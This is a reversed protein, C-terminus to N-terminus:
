EPAGLVQAYVRAVGEAVAEPAHRAAVAVRAAEGLRRRREPDASLRLVAEALADPDDDPVIVGNKDDVLAHAASRCAVVPRGAAMANLIKMPYGSWSTRPCVVISDRRLSERLSAFDPTAVVEAWAPLGGTSRASTAILLRTDPREARAREMAAFLLGLNQYADLNGTYMVPATGQCLASPAFAHAELPPPVVTIRAPDCGCRELYAALAAHPAIIHDARRPFSRDLWAGFRGAARRGRFYHPLEDAMANHAHYVVPGAGAALAALLGEYNHAHVVEVGHARAVRRLTWALAADYFPKAASPGAAIRRAGPFRACRHIPLGSTDEGAGYGYVVLRVDHGADRLATATDRLLVQSGQPAPYPCAGVMAVRYRRSASM